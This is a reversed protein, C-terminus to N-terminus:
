APYRCQLCKHLFWAGNSVLCLGMLRYCLDKTEMNISCLPHFTLVVEPLVRRPILMFVTGLYELCLGLLLNALDANDVVTDNDPHICFFSM